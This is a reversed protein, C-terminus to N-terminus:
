VVSKRDLFRMIGGPDYNAKVTYRVAYTDAEYEDDRSYSLMVAGTGMGAVMQSLYGPNEGLAISTLLGLGMQTGMQNASHREVIHGCEHGLVGAVEAEDSALLLLGSYVYIYGGPVAFANVQNPADVVAFHYDVESRDQKAFQAVRAGIEAIYQQTPPHNLLKNQKQMEQNFQLGLQRETDTPVFVDGALRRLGGSECGSLVVIFVLPLLCYRTVSM